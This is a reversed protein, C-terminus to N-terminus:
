TEQQSPTPAMIIKTKNNHEHIENNQATTEETTSLLSFMM